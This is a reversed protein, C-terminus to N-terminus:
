PIDKRQDPFLDRRIGALAAIAENRMPFAATRCIAYLAEDIRLKLESHRSPRRFDSRQFHHSLANLLPQTDISRRQLRRQVRLLHVMNLKIRMDQLASAALRNKRTGMGALRPMLLSIRDILQATVAMTTPPKVARALQAIESRVARLMRTVLWKASASRLLGTFLVAFGVGIAQSIQANMFSTMGASGMDIMMFNALPTYCLPVAYILTSPRALYIGGILLFPALVLAMSEFSHAGPMLYLLYLGAIPSSLITYTLSAKLVPTPNDLSAFFVCFLSAMMPAAFGLPWGSLVWFATSACVALFAAIASMSAFGHDVHPAKRAKKPPTHAQDMQKGAAAIGIQRRHFFGNECADILRKLHAALNLELMQQWSAHEDVIPTMGNIERQLTVAKGSDNGPKEELWNTIRTFAPQWKELTVTQGNERLTQMTNEISSIQLVISSLQVQLASVNRTAWRLNSADFPLHTTMMRLETIDQALKGHDINILKPNQNGLTHRIWTTADELTKDVRQLTASSVNQPFFVSHILAACSVGLLIEEVRAVAIDFMTVAGFTSIDILAPFGILAPTYGALIFIYSRPTRDLLSIYLCLGLWGALALTLLVSYNILHPLILLVAIAGILTGLARYAAKSRAAGSLPQSAIYAALLAWFPRPLGLRMALYLALMGSAFAKISFQIEASSPWKM